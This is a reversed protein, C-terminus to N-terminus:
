SKGNIVRMFATSTDDSLKRLRETAEKYEASSLVIKFDVMKVADASAPAPSSEVVSILKGIHDEGVWEVLEDRDYLALLKDADFRGENINADVIFEDRQDDSMGTIDQFWDAPADFNDGHIRKLARLRKNGSLM